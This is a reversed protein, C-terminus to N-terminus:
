KHMSIQQNKTKDTEQKREEWKELKLLICQLM